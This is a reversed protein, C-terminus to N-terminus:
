VAGPPAAHGLGFVGQGAGGQGCSLDGVGVFLQGVIRRQVGIGIQWRQRDRRIRKPQVDAACIPCLHRDGAFGRPWFQSFLPGPFQRLGHSRRRGIQRQGPNGSAIFRRSAGIDAPRISISIFTIFATPCIPAFVADTPTVFSQYLPDPQFCNFSRWFHGSKWGYTRQPSYDLKTTGRTFGEMLPADQPGFSLALLGKFHAPSDDIKELRINSLLVGKQGMIAFFTIQDALLRRGPRSKEGVYLDTRFRITSQGPPYVTLANVRTWYDRTQKDRVEIGGHVSKDTPNFVDYCVYDYGSWNQPKECVTYDGQM